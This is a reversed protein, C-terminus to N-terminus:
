DQQSVRRQEREYQEVQRLYTEVAERNQAAYSLLEEMHTRYEELRRREAQAVRSARSQTLRIRSDTQLIEQEGVLTTTGYDGVAARYEGRLSRVSGRSFYGDPFRPAWEVVHEFRRLAEELDGLEQAAKGFGYEANVHSPEWALALEYQIQAWGFRGRGYQINGLYYYSNANSEDLRVVARFHPEAEDPRELDLFLPGLSFHAPHYDPNSDIATRYQEIAAEAEDIASYYHGFALRGELFGPAIRVVNGYFAEAAPSENEFAMHGLGLYSRYHSPNLVLARDFSETARDTEGRRWYFQGVEFQILASEANLEAPDEPTVEGGSDSRLKWYAIWNMPDEPDVRVLREITEVASESPFDILARLRATFLEDGPCQSDEVVQTAEARAREHDEWNLRREDSLFVLAQALNLTYDCNAPEITSAQRFAVEAHRYGDPTGM